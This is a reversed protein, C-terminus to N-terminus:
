RCPSQRSDPILEPGMLEVILVPVKIKLLDVNVYMVCDVKSQGRVKYVNEIIGM